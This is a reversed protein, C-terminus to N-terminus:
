TAKLKWKSGGTKWKHTTITFAGGPVNNEEDVYITPEPEKPYRDRHLSVTTKQVTSRWDDSATPREWGETMGVEGKKRTIGASSGSEVEGSRAGGKQRWYSEPRGLIVSLRHAFEGADTRTTEPL